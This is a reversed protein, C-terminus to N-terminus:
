IYVLLGRRITHIYTYLLQLMWRCNASRKARIHIWSPVRDKALWVLETDLRDGRRQDSPESVPVPFLLSSLFITIKTTRTPTMITQKEPVFIKEDCSDRVFFPVIITFFIFEFYTRHLISGPFFPTPKRNTAEGAQNESRQPSTLTSTNTCLSSPVLLPLSRHATAFSALSFILPFSYACFSPFRFSFQLGPSPSPRASISRSNKLALFLQLFM